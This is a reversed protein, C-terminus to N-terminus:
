EHRMLVAPFMAEVDHGKLLVDGVFENQVPLDAGNMRVAVSQNVISKDRGGIGAAPDDQLPNVAVDERVGFVDHLVQAHQGPMNALAGSGAAGGPARQAQRFYQCGSVTPIKDDVGHAPKPARLLKDRVRTCELADPIDRLGLFDTESEAPEM